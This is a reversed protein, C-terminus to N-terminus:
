AGRRLEAAMAHAVLPMMLRETSEVSRCDASRSLRHRGIRRHYMHPTVHAAERPQCFRRRMSRRATAVGAIGGQSEVPRM